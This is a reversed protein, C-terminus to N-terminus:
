DRKRITGAGTIHRELHAPNGAYEIKGAGTISAKLTDSASVRADGAGTLALEARKSQLSEARLSSAGTMSAVLEDVSGDLVVKSAGATELNFRPGTLQHATFRSAGGFRAGELSASTLILKISRSPRVARRTSVRLTNARMDVEVLGMLNEDTTISVSPPGSSWDVQFAGSVDVSSFAAIARRETILHGNGRVGVADCGALVLILLQAFILKTM